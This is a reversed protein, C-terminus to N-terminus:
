GSSFRCLMRFNVINAVFDFYLDYNQLSNRYVDALVKFKKLRSLTHEIKVRKRRQKTNQIKESRTLEKHKKTRKYPVTANLDPYDKNVGQYGSDLYTPMDEPIIEPLGSEKFLKYDHKRGPSARSSYIILGQGNTAIQKKITFAKKKGSHYKKRKRKKEPRPIRQETADVLIKDLDPFLEKLEEITTLKKGQRRPPLVFRGQLLLIIPQITRWVTSEDAGFLYELLLFSLYLKSWILTLLLQDELKSIIQKRGGGLKRQRDPNNKTLREIRQQQWDDKLENILKDFEEVKLGTFSQFHRSRQKLQEYTM